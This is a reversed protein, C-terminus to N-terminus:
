RLLPAIQPRAGKLEDAKVPDFDGHTKVEDIPYKTELDKLLAQLSQIQQKTLPRDSYDGLMAIGINGPNHGSVHAGDYALDRGEYIRGGPGIMYNYGVDGWKTYAQAPFGLAEAPLRWWNERGRHLNEVRQPTDQRGTHHLTEIHYDPANAERRVLNAADPAHAAWQSRPVLRDKVLARALALNTVDELRAWEAQMAQERDEGALGAYRSTDLSRLRQAERNETLKLSNDAVLRGGLRSKAALVRADLGKLDPLRVDQGARLMPSGNGNLRLRNSSFIAQVGARWDEGYINRALREVTMGRPVTVRDPRSIVEPLDLVVGAANSFVPRLPRPEYGGAEKPANVPSPNNQASPASLVAGLL